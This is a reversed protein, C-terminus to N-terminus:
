PCFWSRSRELSDVWLQFEPSPIFAAAGDSFEDTMMLMMWGLALAGVPRLVRGRLEVARRQLGAASLCLPVLVVDQCTVSVAQTRRQATCEAVTIGYFDYRNRLLCITKAIRSQVSFQLLFLIHPYNMEATYLM